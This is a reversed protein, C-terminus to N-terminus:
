FNAKVTKSLQLKSEHKAVTQNSPNFAVVELISTTTQSFFSITSCLPLCYVFACYLAQDQRQYYSLRKTMKLQTHVNVTVHNLM